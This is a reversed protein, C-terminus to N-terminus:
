QESDQVSVQGNGRIVTDQTVAGGAPEKAPQNPGFGPITGASLSPPSAILGPTVGSPLPAAPAVTSLTQPLGQPSTVAVGPGKYVPQALPGQASSLASPAPCTLDFSPAPSLPTTGAQTIIAILQSMTAPDITVVNTTGDVAQNLATSVAQASPKSAVPASPQLLSGLSVPAGGLSGLSLGKGQFLSNLAQLLAPLAAALGTTSTGPSPAASVYSSAAQSIQGSTLFTRSLSRSGQQTAGPALSADATYWCTRGVGDSFLKPVTWLSTASNGSNAQLISTPSVQPQQCGCALLLSCTSFLSARLKM